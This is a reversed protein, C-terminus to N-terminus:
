NVSFSSTNDNSVELSTINGDGKVVFHHRAALARKGAIKDEISIVIQYKGPKLTPIEFPGRLFFDKRKNYSPTDRVDESIQQIINLSADYLTIEAHLLTFYKNDENKQYQYNELECYVVVQRAKGSELANEALVEYRGFDEVNSCVKFNSIKLDAQNAIEEELMKVASLANNALMPDASRHAKVGLIAARALAMSEKQKELPVMSLEQLAKDHEGHAAYACRLAMQLELNDPQDKLLQELNFILEKTNSVVNAPNMYRNYEAVAPISNRNGQQEDITGIRGVDLAPRSQREEIKPVSALYPQEGGKSQLTDQLVNEGQEYGDIRPTAYGKGYNKITENQRKINDLNATLAPQNGVQMSNGSGYGAVISSKAPQTQSISVSQGAGNQGYQIGTIELPQLLPRNTAMNNSNQNNYSNLIPENSYTQNGLRSQSLLPQEVSTQHFSRNAPISESAAQNSSDSKLPRWERVANNENAHQSNQGSANWESTNNVSQQNYYGNATKSNSQQDLYAQQRVSLQNSANAQAFQGQSNNNVFTQDAGQGADGPLTYTVYGENDADPNGPDFHQFVKSNSTNSPYNGPNNRAVKDKAPKQGMRSNFNWDNLQDYNKNAGRDYRNNEGINNSMVPMQNAAPSNNYNYGSPGSPSCGGSFMILATSVAASFLMGRGVNNLNAM